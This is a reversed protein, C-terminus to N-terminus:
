IAQSMPGKSYIPLTSSSILANSVALFREAATNPSWLETITKQGSHSINKTIENNKALKLLIKSLGQWDGPKFLFGNEGDKIIAAAAGATSSAVVACGVEMAENVVAGWGEYASSPLVYINNKAMVEPIKKAPLPPHFSFQASNLHERALKELKLREPGDGILTLKFAQHHKKLEALAKILTDVRKWPLMRGAWLIKLSTDDLSKELESTSTETFYGWNWTRGEFRAVLKIDTAAFPGIPLYHFAPNKTLRNFERVLCAFSPSLLRAVGVPPKWWRESMYFCIKGRALRDSIRSFRREGCIVIDAEDWWEEFTLRDAESEGARLIWPEFNDNSWGMRTREIDPAQTACFKFNNEGVLHALRRALPM